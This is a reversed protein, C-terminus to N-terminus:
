DSNRQRNAAFLKRWVISPLSSPSIRCEWLTVVSWGLRRLAAVNRRDRETNAAFKALWFDRRTSPTTAYKCRKHRHWFCGHVFIVTRYRPLVIDPTGPLSRVNVRFRFGSRHLQSRVFLEPKTDKGRIRSMVASRQTPTLVDPM